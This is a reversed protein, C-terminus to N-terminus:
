DVWLTLDQALFGEHLDHLSRPPWYRTLGYIIQDIKPDFEMSAIWYPDDPFDEGRAEDSVRVRQGVLFQSRPDDM